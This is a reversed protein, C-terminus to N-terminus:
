FGTTSLNALSIQYSSALRAVLTRLVPLGLGSPQAHKTPGQFMLSSPWRVSRCSCIWDRRSAGLGPPREDMREQDCEEAIPRSSSAFAFLLFSFLSGGAALCM